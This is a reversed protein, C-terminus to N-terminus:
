QIRVVFTRSTRRPQEPTIIEVLWLLTAGSKVTSLWNPPIRYETAELSWLSAIPTLDETMLRLNYRSGAPGPTWRLVFAERPLAAGDAVLPTVSTEGGDRYEAPAAADRWRPMVDTLVGFVLLAAAAMAPGWVWPSRWGTRDGGPSALHPSAHRALRWAEACSACAATHLVVAATEAPALEGHVAMWIREGDPCDDGPDGPAPPAAFGERLRQETARDRPTM